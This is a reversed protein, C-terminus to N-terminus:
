EASTMEYFKELCKKSIEEWRFKNFITAANQSLKYRLQSDNKLELLYKRLSEDDGYSYVYGNEGNIIFRSVGTEKTLIPIVGAVMAEITAIPFLDYISSSIFIDQDMLFKAFNDTPMKPYFNIQDNTILNDGIVNFTFDNQIPQIAKLFFDLGKEVRTSDAVLMVNLKSKEKYQREISVQNFIEDVGNKTLIIKENVVNYYKRAISISQESLFFLRNSFKIICCEAIKDKIKLSASIKERFISNEYAVIGNITYSVKFRLIFKLLYFMIAFREFSLIHVIKPKFKITLILIPFIGLRFIQNNHNDIVRERGFLKQWASYKSGDFFYEIFVSDTKDYLNSFIRKAVKEPGSLIESSNYRGAFIIKIKESELNM